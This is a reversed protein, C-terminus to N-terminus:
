TWGLNWRVLDGLTDSIKDNKQLEISIARSCYNTGVDIQAVVSVHDM